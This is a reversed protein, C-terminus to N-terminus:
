GWRWFWWLNWLGHAIILPSLQRYKTYYTGIILSTVIHQALYFFGQYLHIVVRFATSVILFIGKNYKELRKFLYGVYIVEEFFSNIILILTMVFYSQSNVLTVADQTEKDVVQTETLFLSVLILISIEVVLIIAGHLIARFSLSLNFDNISWNRQKLILAILILAGIEIIVLSLGGQDDFNYIWIQSDGTESGGADSDRTMLIFFSKLSNFIFFGLGITLVLVAEQFNTLKKLRDLMSINDSLTCSNM